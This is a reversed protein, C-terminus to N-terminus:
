AAVLEKKKMKKYKPAVVLHLEIGKEIIKPVVFFQELQRKWWAKKRVILHANRGDSLVKQAKGTHITLYAVQKTCRRIDDLVFKLRDPEIHELVDTCVVLDAPRPPEDKGTIAPDYEWIPYPIAKALYGKGCGYDLISHTKISDAIKLVTEVHKGGGVGYALNEKHLKENLDRYGASILEPKVIGVSATGKVAAKPVYNKMMAQALGEGHFTPVVDPLQDFEHHLHRVCELMATTTKYTKGEYETLAHGKPQSPHAAAHKGSEGECGDMGFVHQNVFGLFRAVVVARLGADSGGFLSWEGAPLTRMADEKNDFVHWRKVQFGGDHLLSFYKPHCASALLYQVDKHPEGILKIKHERPDVDVHYTPIIGKDILFRHAGSTTVIYKFNKLEEWTQNLSPGYGVIAIPEDRLETVADSERLAPIRLNQKIQEDRLWLPVCYTVKQQQTIDLTKQTDSM